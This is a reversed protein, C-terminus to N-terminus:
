LRSSKRPTKVVKGVVDLVPPEHPKTLADMVAGQLFYNSKEADSGSIRPRDRRVLLGNIEPVLAPGLIDAVARPSM